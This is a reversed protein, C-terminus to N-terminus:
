PRSEPNLAAQAIAAAIPEDFWTGPENPDIGAGINKLAAEYRRLTRVLEPVANCAAAIYAADEHRRVGSAEMVYSGDADFIRPNIRALKTHWPGPTAAGALRELEDLDVAADRRLDTPM